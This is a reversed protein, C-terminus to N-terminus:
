LATSARTRKPRHRSSRRTRLHCTPAASRHQDLAPRGTTVACFCVRPSSGSDVSVIGTPSPQATLSLVAVIGAHLVDAPHRFASGTRPTRTPNTQHRTPDSLREFRYQYGPEHRGAAVSGPQAPRRPPASWTQSGCTPPPKRTPLPRDTTASMARTILTSTGYRVPRGQRHAGSPSMSPTATPPETSRLETHDHHGRCTREPM